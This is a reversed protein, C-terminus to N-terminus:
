NQLFHGYEQVFMHDRWDPKMDEGFIFPPMTMAQNKGFDGDIVTVGRFFNVENVLGFTNAGHAMSFGVLTQPGEWAYRRWLSFTREYWRQNPDTYVLGNWLKLENDATKRAENWATNLSWRAIPKSFLGRFFGAWFTFFFQGDPDIYFMPNNGCYVYPSFGQHIPDPMLWIGLSPDYYRRGFYTLGINTHHEKGTYTYNTEDGASHTLEGYPYYDTYYM